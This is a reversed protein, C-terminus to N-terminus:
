ASRAARMMNLLGRVVHPPLEPTTGWARPARNRAVDYAGASVPPAIDMADFGERLDAVVDPSGQLPGWVPSAGGGEDVPLTVPKTAERQRDVVGKFVRLTKVALANGKKAAAAITKVAQLAKLDGGKARKIVSGAKDTLEVAVKIGQMATGVYPIASAISMITPNKTIAKVTSFISQLVKGRAIKRLAGLFDGTKFRPHRELMQRITDESAAAIFRIPGAETTLEAAAIWEGDRRRVKLKLLSRREGDVIEYSKDFDSM